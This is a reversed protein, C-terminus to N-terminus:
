CFDGTIPKSLGELSVKFDLYLDSYITMTHQRDGVVSCTLGLGYSSTKRSINSSRLGAMYWQSHSRHDSGTIM